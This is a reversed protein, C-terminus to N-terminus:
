ALSEEESKQVPNDRLLIFGVESMAAEEANRHCRFHGSWARGNTDPNKGSLRFPDKEPQLAQNVSADHPVAVIIGITVPHHM